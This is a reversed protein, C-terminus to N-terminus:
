KVWRAVEAAIQAHDPREPLYILAVNDGVKLMRWQEKLMNVEMAEPPSTGNVVYQLRYYLNAEEGDWEKEEHMAVVTARVVIGSRALSLTREEDAEMWHQSQEVVVVMMSAIAPSLLMFTLPHNEFFAVLDIHIWYLPLAIGTLLVFYVMATVAAWRALFQGGRRLIFSRLHANRPPPPILLRPVVNISMARQRALGWQHAYYSLIIFPAYLITRFAWRAVFARRPDKSIGFLAKRTWSPFAEIHVTLDVVGFWVVVFFAYIVWRGYRWLNQWFTPSETQAGSQVSRVFVRCSGRMGADTWKGNLHEVHQTGNSSVPTM